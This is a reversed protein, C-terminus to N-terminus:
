RSSNWPLEPYVLGPQKRAEYFTTKGLVESVVICLWSLIVLSTITIISPSPNYLFLISLLLGSGGLGLLVQRICAVNMHTGPFCKSSASKQPSNKSVLFLQIIILSLSLYTLPIILTVLNNQWELEALIPLSAQYNIVSRATLYFSVISTLIGLLFTTTWFSLTTVPSNWGPVTRLRYIRSMCYVLALESIGTIVYLVAITLGPRTNAGLLSYLSVGSTFLLAFFIERSLWSSRLNSLGYWANRLSGLHLFSALLGLISLGMVLWFIVRFLQITELSSLSDGFWLQLGSPVLYAGAATQMLLTFLILSREKM